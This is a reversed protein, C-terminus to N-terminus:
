QFFKAIATCVHNVDNKEMYPHFPLSLVQSCCANAAPLDNETNEQATFATQMHLPKPYYVNTPIGQKKLSTALADRGLLVKLTYQAYSSTRAPGIHPTTIEAVTSLGHSYWEAVQQRRDLEEPFMGLKALLIAAQLTDLRGNIGIRCNDYKDTGKGHIRVSRLEAALSADDTFIAGGDGYCGLPKAPFFSTASGHCGLGCARKGQWTSGLAQAADELVLLNEHQAIPLIEEYAAPQGFLDVPIVCRPNLPKQQLATSPLPHLTADQKKVAEVARALDTPDMNFTKADIDVFIPTAGLLAPMEATAFFTFAPVFVADGPGVNWAMLLMLLADSGSACSVCHQSGVFTALREELEYVEPGMIFNGHKLVTDIRQRIPHELLTYQHKLDIFEM